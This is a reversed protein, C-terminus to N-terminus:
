REPTKKKSTDKEQKEVPRIGNFFYQMRQKVIEYSDFEPMSLHIAIADVYKKNGIKRSYEECRGWYGDGGTHITDSQGDVIMLYQATDVGIEKTSVEQGEYMMGEAYTEITEKPAMYVSMGCLKEGPFDSYEVETLLVRAEFFRPPTYSATLRKLREGSFEEFYSPDGVVIRRPCDVRFEEQRLVKEEPKGTEKNEM